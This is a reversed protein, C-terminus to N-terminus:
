FPPAVKNKKLGKVKQGKEIILETKFDIFSKAKAESQMQVM